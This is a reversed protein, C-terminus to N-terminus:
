GDPAQKFRATEADSKDLKVWVNIDVGTGHRRELMAFNKDSIVTGFCIKIKTVVFSESM